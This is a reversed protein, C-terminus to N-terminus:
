QSKEKMRYSYAHTLAIALADATDDPKPIQPLKLLVKVMRQVQPKEARGDGTVTLKVSLPSYSVVPLGKQAAALMIVGRAQGVAIATKANSSFFLDEISMCDPKHMDILVSIERHICELRLAPDMDQSTIIAGYDAPQPSQGRMEVFAWGVIATGPDIGLIKM